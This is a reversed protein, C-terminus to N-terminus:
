LLNVTIERQFTCPPEKVTPVTFHTRHNRRRDGFKTEFLGELTIISPYFRRVATVANAQHGPLGIETPGGTLLGVFVDDDKMVQPM